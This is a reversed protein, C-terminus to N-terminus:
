EHKMTRLELRLRVLLISARHWILLIAFAWGSIGIGLRKKLSWQFGSYLLAYHSQFGLALGAFLCGYAIFKGSLKLTPFAPKDSYVSQSKQSANAYPNNVNELQSFHSFGSLQSSLGQDLAIL